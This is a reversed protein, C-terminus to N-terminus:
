QDEKQWKERTSIAYTQVARSDVLITNLILLINQGAMLITQYGQIERGGRM